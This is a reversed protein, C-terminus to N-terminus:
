NTLPISHYSKNCKLKMTIFFSTGWENLTRIYDKQVIFCLTLLKSLKTFFQKPYFTMKFDHRTSKSLTNTTSVFFFRSYHTRFPWSVIIGYAMFWVGIYCRKGWSLGYISYDSILVPWTADLALNSHRWTPEGDFKALNRITGSTVCM